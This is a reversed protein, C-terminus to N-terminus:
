NQYNKNQPESVLLPRVVELFLSKDCIDCIERIQMQLFQFESPLPACSRSEAARMTGALAFRQIRRTMGGAM